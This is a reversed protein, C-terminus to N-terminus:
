AAEIDGVDGRVVGLWEALHQYRKLMAKWEREAENLLVQRAIDDKAIEEIPVYSRVDDRPLSHFARVTEQEAGDVQRVRVSRILESAQVERYKEAAISDDWEFRDHLPHKPDRAEELVLRPTLQGHTAYIDFLQDRLSM